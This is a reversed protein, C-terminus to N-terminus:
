QYHKHRVMCDYPARIVGELESTPIIEVEKPWTTSEYTDGTGFFPGQSGDKGENIPGQMQLLAKLLRTTEEKPLTQKPKDPKPTYGESLDKSNPKKKLIPTFQEPIGALRIAACGLKYAFEVPKGAGLADYFGVAFEIAARDGIAKSM